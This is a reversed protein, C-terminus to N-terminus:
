RLNPQQAHVCYKLLAQDQTNTSHDCKIKKLQALHQHDKDQKIFLNLLFVFPYLNRCLCRVLEAGEHHKALQFCKFILICLFYINVNEILFFFVSALKHMNEIM